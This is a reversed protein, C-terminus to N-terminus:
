WLQRNEMTALCPHCKSRSASSGKHKSKAIFNGSNFVVFIDTSVLPLSIEWYPGNFGSSYNFGINEGPLYKCSINFGLAPVQTPFGDPIASELTYYLSGNFVGLIESDELNGKWPLFELNRALSPM